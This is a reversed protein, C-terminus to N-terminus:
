LVCLWHFGFYVISNHQRSLPAVVPGVTIKLYHLHGKTTSIKRFQQNNLFCSHRTFNCVGRLSNGVVPTVHVFVAAGGYFGPVQVQCRITVQSRSLWIPMRRTRLIWQTPHLKQATLTPSVLMYGNLLGCCDRRLRRWQSYKVLWLVILYHREDWMQLTLCNHWYKSVAYQISNGRHLTGHQWDHRFLPPQRLLPTWLFTTRM